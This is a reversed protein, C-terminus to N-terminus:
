ISGVLWDSWREMERETQRTRSTIPQTGSGMTVTGHIAYSSSRNPQVHQGRSAGPM